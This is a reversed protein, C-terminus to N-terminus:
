LPLFKPQIATKFELSGVRRFKWITSEEGVDDIERREALDMWGEDMMRFIEQYARCADESTSTLDEYEDEKAVVYEEDSREDDEHGNDWSKWGENNPEVDENILGDMTAKNRLAEEKLKSDWTVDKNWEYIWDDKFEEYTKFGEIDKTLLDPDIEQEDDHNTEELDSCGEDTPEIEDSRLKWYNNNCCIAIASKNDCYLPIKNFQLGYDTLQSRMWLIQACCRSLTIYEAETSSIATSMKKKSSWSVLKDGLFQASGSISRRTDQCGAHDADSYAKLSMDTDKSYWLGM